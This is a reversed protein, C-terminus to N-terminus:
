WAGGICASGSSATAADTAALPPPPATPPLRPDTPRRSASCIPRRAELACRQLAAAREHRCTKSAGPLVPSRMCLILAIINVRCAHLGPM